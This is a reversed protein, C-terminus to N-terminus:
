PAWSERRAKREFEYLEDLAARRTTDGAAEETAAKEEAVRRAEEMQARLRERDEAVMAAEEATRPTRDYLRELDEIRRELSGM